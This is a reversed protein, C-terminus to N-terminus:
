VTPDAGLIALATDLSGPVIETDDSLWCTYTSDIDRWVHNYSRATGLLQGQLVPTIRPDSQIYEITGDTSGGDIVMLELPARTGDFIADVVSRLMAVRNYTAILVVFHHNHQNIM